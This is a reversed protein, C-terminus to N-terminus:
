IEAATVDLWKRMHLYRMVEGGPLPALGNHVAQYGLARYLAVGSVLADLSLMPHGHALVDSEIHRVLQRAIGRRALAPDVYMARLRSMEEGDPTASLYGPVQQGWGGCGALVGDVEAIFYRGEWILEEDLTGAAIFADIQSARYHGLSMQRLAREHLALLAPQDAWAAKRLTIALPPLAQVANMDAVGAHPSSSLM